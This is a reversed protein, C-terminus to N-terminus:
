GRAYTGILCGAGVVHGRAVEVIEARVPPAAFSPAVDLAIAEFAYRHPEHGRPPKPPRYRAQHDSNRGMPPGRLRARANSLAGEPLGGDGAPLGWVIAHVFPHATPSDMDEVILVLSAAGRPVGRWQISPSVGAGDATYRRPIREGDSFAASFLDISGNRPDADLESLATRGLGARLPRLSRGIARPLFQLM